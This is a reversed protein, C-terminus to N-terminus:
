SKVVPRKYLGTAMKVMVLRVLGDTGPHVEVVQATLRKTPTLNDEKLVVINEVSPNTM